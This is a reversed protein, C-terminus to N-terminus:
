HSKAGDVNLVHCTIFSAEGSAVFVIANALDESPGLRARPVAM